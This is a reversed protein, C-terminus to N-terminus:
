PAPPLPKFSFFFPVTPTSIKADGQTNMRPTGAIFNRGGSPGGSIAKAPREFTPLDDSILASTPRLPSARVDFVGPRM